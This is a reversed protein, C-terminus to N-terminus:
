GFYAPENGPKWKINCGISPVQREDVPDGALVADIAARMDKGDLEGRGPRDPGRMPRSDDIQGRYVLTRQPGFLFFDPTCAATYAKAVVQSEDFLIPFTLGSERAWRATPEPADDPYQALDNATIGVIAVSEGAYDTAIRALEPSVHHVYPCHACFFVVLLADRDAFDALAVTRGTAVDPLAFHPAPTGLALMTSNTASM